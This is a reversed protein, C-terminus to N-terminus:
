SRLNRIGTTPYASRPNTRTKWISISGTPKWLYLYGGRETQEKLTNKHPQM